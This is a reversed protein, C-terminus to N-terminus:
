MLGMSRQLLNFWTRVWVKWNMDLRKVTKASIYITQEEQFCQVRMGWEAKGPTQVIWPTEILDGERERCHRCTLWRTKQVRTYTSPSMHERSNVRIQKASNPFLAVHVVRRFYKSSQVSVLFLCKQLQSEIQQGEKIVEIPANVYSGSDNKKSIMIDSLIIAARIASLSYIQM